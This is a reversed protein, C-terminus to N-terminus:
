GVQVTPRRDYRRLISDVEALGTAGETDLELTEGQATIRTTMGLDLRMPKYHNFCLMAVARVIDGPPTTWGFTGAVEVAQPGTPWSWPDRVATLGAAPSGLLEITDNQRPDSFDDGAANLSPMVRYIAASQVTLVGLEDRTAVQTVASCRKPIFLKFWPYVPSLKLTTTDAIFDDFTLEQVRRTMRAITVTLDADNAEAESLGYRGVAEHVALGGTSPRFDAPTLVPAM